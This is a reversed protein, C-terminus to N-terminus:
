IGNLHIATGRIGLIDCILTSNRDIRARPYKGRLAQVWNNDDTAADAEYYITEGESMKFEDMPPSFDSEIFLKITHDAIRNLNPLDCLRTMEKCPWEKVNKLIYEVKRANAIPISPLNFPVKDVLAIMKPEAGGNLHVRIGEEFRCTVEYGKLVLLTSQLQEVLGNFESMQMHGISITLFLKSSDFPVESSAVGHLFRYINEEGNRHADDVELNLYKLNSNTMVMMATNENINNIFKLSTLNPFNQIGRLPNQPPNKLILHPLSDGYTTIVADDVVEHDSLYRANYNITLKFVPRNPLLGIIHGISNGAQDVTISLEGDHYAAM